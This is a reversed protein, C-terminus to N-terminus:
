EFMRTVTFGYTRPAGYARYGNGFTLLNIGQTVYEEDALNRGWLSFEWINDLYVSARANIVWYSDSQLLPDNLADRFAVDQYNADVALEASYNASLDFFYRVDLSGSWEPADPLENGKPIIGAAAAFSDLETDLYGAGLIVKLGDVSAPLWTVLLDVGTIDGGDINGLRQIPIDGSNDLIYSQVDTYDYYFVAAQYTLGYSASQGKMGLEYALLQEKKYPELQEPTTAVGTFFGGSKTGQSVSMYALAADTAQWNLGLKWDISDDDINEDVSALTLPGSGAPTGSLGSAPPVTVLDNTYGDNSKEEKTYRLGTILSLTDTLNWEGNAFVAMSTAELDAKSETTTNLLDQYNGDYTTEIKDSAYFVGGQWFLRESDGSLRLEQSFQQVGDSNYSDLIRAPSADVDSGYSRDFDIYGTISALQAFGLDSDVRLAYMQQNLKYDPDVSWDGSFPDGDNDSYGLFNSCQPKGPCDSTQATPFAGFFEPSGLQSRARQGDAKFLVDTSDSVAWLLQARGMLVDRKGIDDRGDANNTYFGEGQDIGRTALRISLRDNIPLNVAGELEALEYDGVTGQLRGSTGDFHPKATTINLAGAISNRGYLTGQPGKLVEMRQLDYFDSSLLALSSMSVEDIYVGTAPNNAANFDNLGVGRITIIPMLGPFFEKVAANPTFLTIDTVDVIRRQRIEQENAVAVTIGVDLIDQERKQATIIVEELTRGSAADGEALAVSPPLQIVCAVALALLTRPSPNSEIHKM